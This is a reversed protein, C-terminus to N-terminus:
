PEDRSGDRRAFVWAGALIVALWLLYPLYWGSEPDTWWFVLPSVFLLLVLLGLLLVSDIPPDNEPPEIM